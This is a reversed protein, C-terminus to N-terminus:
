DGAKADASKDQEDQWAKVRKLFETWDVPKEAFRKRNLSCPSEDPSSNAYKISGPSAARTTARPM